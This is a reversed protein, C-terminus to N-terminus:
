REIRAEEVYVTPLVQLRVNDRHSLELLHDLQERMVEVTGVQRHLVGEELVVFIKPAPDSMVQNQRDLRATIAEPDKLIAGAYGETQFLGNVIHTEYVRLLTATSETQPFSVFHDAYKITKISELLEDWARIVAGNCRLAEDLRSAFDLRCRTEGLEVHSIYARSVAVLAAVQVQSLGAGERLRRVEAGFTRLELATKNKGGAGNM